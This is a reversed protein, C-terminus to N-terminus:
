GATSRLEVPPGSVLLAVLMLMLLVAAVQSTRADVDALGEGRWVDRYTRIATLSLPAAALCYIPLIEALSLVCISGVSALVLSFYVAKAGREGLISALTVVGSADDQRLDRLNNGALVSATLLGSPLSLAIVYAHLMGTQAYAAAAVLLPGFVVVM